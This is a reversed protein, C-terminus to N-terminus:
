NLTLLRSVDPINNTIHQLLRNNVQDAQGPEERNIDLLEQEPFLRFMHQTARAKNDKNISSAISYLILAGTIAGIFILNDNNQNHKALDFVFSALFNNTLMGAASCVMLSATIEEARTLSLTDFKLISSTISKLALTRFDVIPLQLAGPNILLVQSNSKESYFSMMQDFSSSIVISKIRFKEPIAPLENIAQVLNIAQVIEDNTFETFQNPANTRYQKNIFVSVPSDLPIANQPNVLNNANNEFHFMIIKILCFVLQIGASQYFIDHMKIAALNNKFYNLFSM